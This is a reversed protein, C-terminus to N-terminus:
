VRVSARRCLPPLHKGIERVDFRKKPAGRVQDQAGGCGHCLDRIAQECMNHIGTRADLLAEAKPPLLLPATRRVVSGLHVICARRSDLRTTARRRRRLRRRRDMSCGPEPRFPEEISALRFISGPSDRSAVTVCRRKPSASRGRAQAM